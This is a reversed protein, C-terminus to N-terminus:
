ELMECQFGKNNLIRTVEEPIIHESEVRLIRDCDDLDFNIKFGPFLHYLDAKVKNATTRDSINTKFVEVMKTLTKNM